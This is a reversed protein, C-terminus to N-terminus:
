ATGSRDRLTWGQVSVSQTSKNVFRCRKRSSDDGAPNPLLGEIVVSSSLVPSGGALTGEHALSSTGGPYSVTYTGAGGDVTMLITGDDDSTEPNAIFADLM